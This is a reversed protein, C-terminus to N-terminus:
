NSINDTLSCVQILKRIKADKAIQTPWSGRLNGLAPEKKRLMEKLLKDKKECKILADFLSWAADEVNEKFFRDASYGLEHSVLETKQGITSSLEALNKGCKIVHIAKERTKLLM